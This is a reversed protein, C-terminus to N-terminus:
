ISKEIKITLDLFETKNKYKNKMKFKLRHPYIDRAGKEFNSNNFTMLDGIFSFIFCIQKGSIVIENKVM